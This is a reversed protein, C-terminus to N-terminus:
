IRKNKKDDYIWVIITLVAFGMLLYQWFNVIIYILVAAISIIMYTIDKRVRDM